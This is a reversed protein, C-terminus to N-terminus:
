DIIEDEWETYYIEGICNEEDYRLDALLQAKDNDYLSVACDFSCAYEGALYYGESMPSGCHSCRRIEVCM